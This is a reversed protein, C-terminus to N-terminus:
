PDIETTKRLIWLEKPKGEIEAPAVIMLPALRPDNIVSRAKYLITQSNRLDADHLEIALGIEQELAAYWIDIANHSTLLFPTGIPADSM